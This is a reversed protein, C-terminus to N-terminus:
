PMASDPVLEDQTSKAAPAFGVAFLLALGTALFAAIRYAVEYRDGTWDRLWGVLLNGLFLGSGNIFVLVGQASARIDHAAQKNVFVQGSIVFCCIFVGSTALAPLVLGIPEGLSLLALGLAWSGAGFVMTPKAGFRTLLFPLIALAAVETTQAITLCLPVLKEEIGLKKLLLPNLQVTFPVTIYLGFM